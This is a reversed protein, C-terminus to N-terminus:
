MMQHEYKEFAKKASKEIDGYTKDENTSDFLVVFFNKFYLRQDNGIKKANSRVRDLYNIMSVLGSRVNQESFKDIINHIDTINCIINKDILLGIACGFGTLTQSKSFIQFINVGYPSAQLDLSDIDIGEPILSNLKAVMQSYTRVFDQFLMSDMDTKSLKEINIINELIDRRDMPLYDREIFSTFGDVIDSYKYENIVGPKSDDTERILKVDDIKNELYSSYLIEIQHRASMKTQGTNLTLMRYLIGLKNIGIYVEVRIPTKLIDSDTSKLSMVIEQITLSRQLGDLIILKDTNKSIVDIIDESEIDDTYAMVIPPILCGQELDQKLLCYISTSSPVRKRQYENNRLISKSLEYYEGLTMEILQNKSHIKKDEIINGILKM